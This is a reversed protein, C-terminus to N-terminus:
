REGPPSEGPDDCCEERRVMVHIVYVNQDVESVSTRVVSGDPLRDQVARAADYMARRLEEDTVM